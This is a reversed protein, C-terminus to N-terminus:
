LTGDVSGDNPPAKSLRLMLSEHHAVDMAYNDGGQVGGLDQHEWLDRVYVTDAASYGLDPMSVSVSAPQEKYQLKDDANYLM